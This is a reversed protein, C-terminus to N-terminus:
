GLGPTTFVVFASFTDGHCTSSVVDCYSPISDLWLVRGPSIRVSFNENPAGCVGLVGFDYAASLM